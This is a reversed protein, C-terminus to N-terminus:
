PGGASLPCGAHPTGASRERVAPLHAPHSDASGLPLRPRSRGPLWRGRPLDRRPEPDAGARGRADDEEALYYECSWPFHDWRFSLEFKRGVAELVRIGEPMVEKGIGDGPIVAIRHTAM